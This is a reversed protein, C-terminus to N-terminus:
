PILTARTLSRLLGRRNPEFGRIRHSFFVQYGQYSIIYYPVEDAIIRAADHYASARAERSQASRGVELLRDLRRNRYGGWNLGGTSHLQEFTVRDPDVVQTWGLLIVDYDGADRRASFSPWDSIEVNVAIGNQTWTHQLFEVTQVRNVDESHTGLRFALRRGDRDLVGDGDTDRWGLEALIQRAGAPDFPAQAIESSYGWSTPPFISGAADDTNEYIQTVITEQDVLMSIARRMMPDRLHPSKTNFNLYTIALGPQMSNQFGPDAALRKIDQPALPSQILDLDGAEFAQARATNDPVLVVDIRTVTPVGAWHDPNAELRVRSGKEWRRLRYPGSGVPMSGLNHGAEALHRPVIGMDLYSLFPAFPEHLTFRVTRDDVAEISDIPVYLTRQPARLQPDLITEFTYVVDAATLSVGDHFRVDARLHFVWTTPSPNEWSEALGPVPQLNTDLQLLGDYILNVVRFGTTNRQLRPDLSEADVDAGVRVVDQDALQSCGSLALSVTVLRRVWTTAPSIRTDRAM